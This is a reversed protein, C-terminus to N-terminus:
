DIILRIGYSPVEHPTITLLNSKRVIKSLNSKGQDQIVIFSLLYRKVMYIVYFNINM